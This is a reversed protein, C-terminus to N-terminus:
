SVIWPDIWWRAVFARTFLPSPSTNQRIEPFGLDTFFQNIFDLIEDHLSILLREAPQQFFHHGCIYSIENFV